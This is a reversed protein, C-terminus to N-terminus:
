FRVIGTDVLQSLQDSIECKFVRVPEAVAILVQTYVTPLYVSDLVSDFAM